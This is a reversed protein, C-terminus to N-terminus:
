RGTELALERTSHFIRQERAALERLAQRLEPKDTQSGDILKAIEQTRRNVRFQLSRILKLEALRDVLRPPQEEQQGPPANQDRQDQREQQSKEVAALMEELSAIIDREIGQTLDGVDFRALRDAVQQMDDHVQSLSEVFAVSTGDEELLLRAKEAEIALLGQRRGLRGSDLEDGRQRDAVAIDALRVTVTEIEREIKLMQRLREELQVLMQELEQERLQRLAKELEAKAARLERLAAEQEETAERQQAQQLRAQAKQMRQRAAQLPAAGAAPQAPSAQQPADSQKSEPQKAASPPSEAPDSSRDDPEPKDEPGDAKKESNKEPSKDPSPEDAPKSEGDAESSPSNQPCESAIKEALKGTKDALKGQRSATEDKPASRETQVQLAQQDQILRNIEKLYAALREREAQAQREHDESLLVGLLQELEKVLSQQQGLALGTQQKELLEVLRSFQLGILKDKSRAVAKRLLAARRPDTPATVEALRLLLTEFREFHESLRTQEGVLDPGATEGAPAAAGTAPPEATPTDVPAPSEYGRAASAATALLICLACAWHRAGAHRTFVLTVQSMNTGTSCWDSM